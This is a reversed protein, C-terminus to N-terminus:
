VADLTLSTSKYAQFYRAGLEYLSARCFHINDGNQVAQNNSPLDATEVFAGNGVEKVVEQIKEVIPTCDGINEMKWENVFDGAIFPMNPCHYRVRVSEVLGKLQAKFCEPANKEFADHEGQHWLLATVRNEPHLSLAYDVMELMKNYLIGEMTWHKKYFGSGGVAARVILIKRDEALLEQAYLRAFPLAFDATTKGECVREKAIDISFPKDAYVIKLNEPLHEVTKEASLSLIKETPQFENEVAGVGSGEANSQGALIIIDFKDM